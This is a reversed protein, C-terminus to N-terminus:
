TRRTTSDDAFNQTLTMATISSSSAFPCSCAWVWPSLGHLPWSLTSFTGELYQTKSAHRSTRQPDRRTLRKRTHTCVAPPDSQPPNELQTCRKAAGAWSAGSTGLM